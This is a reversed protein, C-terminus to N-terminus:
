TSSGERFARLFSAAIDSVGAIDLWAWQGNPNVEFFIWEGSKTIAMDIAAFRLGYIKMLEKLSKAISPPVSILEYDVDAMNNRRIDCRQEGLVDSASLSVAHIEEDVITIRVDTRKDVLQQFLTPCCTLDDLCQLDEPGIRNTYILTDKESDPRSIYAPAMPKAIIKGQHEEFFRRLDDPEQTVLTPPVLFGIKAASSLQGLKNSAVSNASPFNLWREKPIHSFFGEIAETWESLAYKGEPSGDFQDNKLCEPRRYWVSTIQSAPVWRDLVKVAPCGNQYRFGLTSLVVDTDFRFYEVGESRLRAALFDATVDASNSVILLM